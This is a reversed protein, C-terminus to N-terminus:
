VQKCTSTLFDLSRKLGMKIVTDAADVEAVNNNTASTALDLMPLFFSSKPLLTRSNITTRM